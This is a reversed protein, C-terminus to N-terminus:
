FAWQTRFTILDVDDASSGDTKVVPGNEIDFTRSYNAMLRMNDNLYWNLALSIRKGDGGFVNDDELDVEDYRAAVEWAGWSGNSLSFPRAPKLRKFEGDSGKYTRSEGTLSYGLQTYFGYFDLNSGINRDVKTKAFESQFSLPGYMASLEVIAIQTNDIGAITGTNLLRLDSGNTTEYAFAASKTNAENDDSTTRVGFNAGLHLVRDKEMVPAYTGRIGLGYGENTNSTGSSVADGYVGGQLNWNEGKAKLNLGIARDFNPLTLAYVLSRETFMIDNTSEQVEMSMAHKQNGVTLELPADFGAYSLFLDKVSLKNGAFDAEIMYKFEKHAVGKLYMRARRIETGDVPKSGSALGDDVHNFADAHLRGGIQMSFDKEASTVVVGKKGVELSPSKNEAVVPSKERTAILPAAEEPTLIGKEDQLKNLEASSEAMALPIYGTSFVGMLVAMAIGRVRMGM